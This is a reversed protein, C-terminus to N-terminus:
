WWRLPCWVLRLRLMLSDGGCRVTDTVFRVAVNGSTITIALACIGGIDAAVVDTVTATTTAPGGIDHGIHCGVTTANRRRLLLVVESLIGVPAADKALLVLVRVPRTRLHAACPVTAAPSLRLAAFFPDHRRGVRSAITLWWRWRCCCKTSIAFAGISERRRGVAVM